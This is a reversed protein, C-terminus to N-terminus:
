LKQKQKKYKHVEMIITQMLLKTIGSLYKLGVTEGGAGEGLLQKKLLSVCTLWKLNQNLHESQTKIKSSTTPAAAKKLRQSSM